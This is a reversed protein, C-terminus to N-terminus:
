QVNIITGDQGSKDKGNEPGGVITCGTVLLPPIMSAHAQQRGSMMNRDSVNNNYLQM